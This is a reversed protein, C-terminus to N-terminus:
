FLKNVIYMKDNNNQKKHLYSKGGRRRRRRKGENPIRKVIYTRGSEIYEKGDLQRQEEEATLLILTCHKISCKDKVTQIADQVRVRECHKYKFLFEEPAAKFRIRYYM